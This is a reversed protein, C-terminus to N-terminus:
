IALDRRSMKGKVVVLQANVTEETNLFFDKNCNFHLSSQLTFAKIVYNNRMLIHTLTSQLAFQLNKERKLSPYSPLM